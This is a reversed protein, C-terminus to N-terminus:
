IVRSRIDSYIPRLSPQNRKWVDESQLNAITEQEPQAPRVATAFQTQREGTDPNSMEQFQRATKIYKNNFSSVKDYINMLGQGFSTAPATGLSTLAPTIAQSAAQLGTAGLTGLGSSLGAGAAGAAGSAFAPTISGAAGAGLASGAGAGATSGASAFAPTIASSAAGSSAASMGANAAAGTAGGGAGGMAGAAAGGSFISGIIIAAMDGPKNSSLQNAGHIFGINKDAWNSIPNNAVEFDVIPKSIPSLYENTKDALYNGARHPSYKEMGAAKLLHSTPDLMEGLRAVGSEHANAANNAATNEIAANIYPNKIGSFRTFLM